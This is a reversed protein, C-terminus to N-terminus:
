GGLSVCDRAKYRNNEVALRTLREAEVVSLRLEGNCKATSDLGNIFPQKRLLLGENVTLPM